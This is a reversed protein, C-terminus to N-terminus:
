GNAEWEDPLDTHVIDGLIELEGKLLGRLPRPQSTVPVVRAIPVGHKTLVLEHGSDRMGELIELCRAKFESVALVDTDAAGSAQRRKKPAM